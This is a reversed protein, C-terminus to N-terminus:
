RAVGDFRVLGEQTGLWLYGDRTQVIADVTSQPLGSEPTWVSLRAQTLARHPDLAFASSALLLAVLAALAVRIRSRM